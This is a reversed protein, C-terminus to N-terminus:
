QLLGKESVPLLLTRLGALVTVPAAMFHSSARYGGWTCTVPVPFAMIILFFYYYFAFSSIIARPCSSAERRHHRSGSSSSSEMVFM